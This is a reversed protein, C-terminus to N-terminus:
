LGFFHNTQDVMPNNNNRHTAIEIAPKISKRRLELGRMACTAPLEISGASRPGLNFHVHLRHSIGKWKQTSERRGLMGTRQGFQPWTSTSKSKSDANISGLAISVPSCSSYM